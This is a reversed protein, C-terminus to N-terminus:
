RFRYEVGVLIWLEDYERSPVDSNKQEQGLQGTVSLDRSVQYDLGLELNITEDDSEDEEFATYRYGLSAFGTLLESLARSYRVDLGASEELENTELLDSQNAFVKANFSSRDSFAKNIGTSLTTTQVTLSENLNFEFDEFRIDFSSTRDTLERAARLYWDTSPNLARTLDIEGVLGDSSRTTGGFDSEIESVGFAGSLATTAWRKQFTARLTEVDVEAGSDFETRSAFLSVGGSLTQSFLHNWAISGVYRESGTEEPESFETNEYKTDLAISDTGGVRWIYRPGTSFVNKQTTNSPTDSGTSDQRVERLNNDLDWFLGTTLECQSDLDMTGDSKSDFSDDQWMSYGLIGAFSAECRGPDSVYSAKLYTRSELDSNEATAAKRANDTARASQGGTLELQASAALPSLAFILALTLRARSQLMGEGPTRDM